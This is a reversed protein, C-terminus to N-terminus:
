MHLKAISVADLSVDATGDGPTRDAHKVCLHRGTGRWPELRWICKKTKHDLARNVM